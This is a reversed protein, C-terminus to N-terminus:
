PTADNLTQRGVVWQIKRGTLASRIAANVQDLTCTVDRNQRMALWEFDQGTGMGALLRLMYSQDDGLVTENQQQLHQKAADLESETIGQEVFLDWEEQMLALTKDSTAGACTSLLRICGRASAPAWQVHAHVTYALGERERIRDVLRANATGGFAVIALRLPTGLPDDEHFTLPLAGVVQAKANDGQEVTHVSRAAWATDFGPYQTAEHQGDLWPVTADYGQYAALVREPSVDGCISWEVYGRESMTQVDTRAQEFTWDTLAKQQAQFTSPKRWHGMPFNDLQLSLWRNAQEVPDVERTRLQNIAAAQFMAFQETTFAPQHYVAVALEFAEEFYDPEVHFVFGKSTWHIFGHHQHFWTEIDAQTHGAGGFQHLESGYKGALHYPARTADSGVHSTYVTHVLGDSTKRQLLQIDAQESQVVRTTGLHLDLYSGAPPDVDPIISPVQPFECTAPAKFGEFGRAEGPILLVTTQNDRQLYQSFAANMDEPTADRVWQQRVFAWQWDGHLEADVIAHHLQSWDVLVNHYQALQQSRAAELAVLPIGHMQYHGIRHVLPPVSDMVNVEPKASAFLMALGGDVLDYYYGQLHTLQDSGEVMDKHLLMSAPDVVANLAMELAVSEPTFMPPARWALLAMNENRPHYLTRTSPGRHAPEVTWNHTPSPHDTAPVAGFTDAVQQLVAEEQFNGTILLFANDIRYHKKYFDRLASYPAGEVDSSAGITSRGYGHWDFALRQAHELIMRSPTSHYLDMENRVVSMETRLQEETFSAATLREFELTLAASVNDTPVEEYYVTRDSSTSANWENALDTLHAMIDPVTPTSKFLMHELLHAMGTEGYGEHKSGVRVVMQVHARPANPYNALILKFGNPFTHAVLGGNRVIQTSSTSTM